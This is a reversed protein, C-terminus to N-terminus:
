RPETAVFIDGDEVQVDYTAVPLVAPLTLAKGTRIDFQSGHLPCEVVDGFIDGDSLSAEEHSCTDCIAYFEGDLNFVAIPEDGVEVRLATEPAIEDVRAVKVFEM